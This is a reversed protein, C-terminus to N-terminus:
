NGNTRVNSEVKRTYPFVNRINSMELVIENHYEFKHDLFTAVFMRTSPSVVMHVQNPGQTRMMRDDVASFFAPHVAHSHITGIIHVSDGYNTRIHKFAKPVTDDGFTYESSSGYVHDTYCDNVYARVMGTIKDQLINGILIAGCEKSPEKQVLDTIDKAVKPDMVIKMRIGKQGPNFVPMPRVKMAANEGTETVYFKKRRMDKPRRSERLMQRDTIKRKM